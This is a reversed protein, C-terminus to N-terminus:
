SVALTQQYMLMENCETQVCMWPREWIDISSCHQDAWIEASQLCFCAADVFVQIIFWPLVSPMKRILWSLPCERWRWVTQEFSSRCFEFFIQCSEKASLWCSVRAVCRTQALVHMYEHSLAVYCDGCKNKARHSLLYWQLMFHNRYHHTGPHSLTSCPLLLPSNCNFQKDVSDIAIKWFDFEVDVICYHGGCM